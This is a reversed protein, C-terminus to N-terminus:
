QAKVEIRRVQSQLEAPKPMRITLVGDKFKADVQEDKVEFPLRLSRAFSGYRRETYYAGGKKEETETKKEGRITLVDGTLSVEIDKDTVGPLEATIVMEKDTEDLDIAPAIAGSGNGARGPFGDFFHDFMRDMERRFTVFPDFYDERPAPSQARNNKWPVLAKFDVMTVGGKHMNSSVRSRASAASLLKM